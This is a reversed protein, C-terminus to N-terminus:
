MIFDSLSLNYFDSGALTIDFDRQGDGNADVWVKLDAFAADKANIVGDANADYQALAAWGDKALSGDALQTNNGLLEAGSTVHGDHNLDLVVPAVPVNLTVANASYATSGGNINADVTTGTSAATLSSTGTLGSNDILRM